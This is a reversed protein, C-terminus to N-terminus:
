VWERCKDYVISCLVTWIHREYRKVPDGLIWPRVFTLIYIDLELSIHTLSCLTSVGETNIPLGCCM